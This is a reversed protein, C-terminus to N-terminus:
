SNRRQIGALGLLGNWATKLIAAPDTKEDLLILLYHDEKRLESVTEDWLEKQKPDQLRDYAHQLLESIKAEYEPTDYQAEFEDNLAVPDECSSPDSETFYMMRKELDSFSLKELAAQEAVQQALFDKAQRSNMCASFIVASCERARDRKVFRYHMNICIVTYKHM